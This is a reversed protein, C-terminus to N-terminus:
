RSTGGDVRKGRKVLQRLEEREDTTLDVFYKKKPM